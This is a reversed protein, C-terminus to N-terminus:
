GIYSATNTFSIDQEHEFEVDSRDLARSMEGMWQQLQQSTEPDADSVSIFEDGISYQQINVNEVAGKAKIATLCELAIGYDNDGYFDASGTRGYMERKAANLLGSLQTAPLEDPRDDYSTRDRVSSKLEEDSELVFDPQAM